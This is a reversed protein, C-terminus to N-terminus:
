DFTAFTENQHQPAQSTGGNSGSSPRYSIQHAPSATTRMPVSPENQGFTDFDAFVDSSTVTSVGAISSSFTEDDVVTGGNGSALEFNAFMDDSKFAKQDASLLTTGAEQKAKAAPAPTLAVSQKAPSAAADVVTLAARRDAALKALKAAHYRKTEMWACYAILFVIYSVYLFQLTTGSKSQLYGCHFDLGCGGVLYRIGSFIGFCALFLALRGSWWHLQNWVARRPSNPSPRVIALIPQIFAGLVIVFIGFITHYNEFHGSSGGIALFFGIWTFLVALCMCLRHNKFWFPPRSYPNIDKAYRAFLVGMPVLIGWAMFMFFGHASLPKNSDYGIYGTTFDVHLSDHAIHEELQDDQGVAWLFNTNGIAAVTYGGKAYPSAMPRTFRMISLGDIREFSTNYLYQVPFRIIQSATRGKAAYEVVEPEGTEPDMRGIILNSPIMNLSQGMGFGIYGESTSEIRVKIYGNTVNWSLIYSDDLTRTFTYDGQEDGAVGKCLSVFLLVSFAVLQKM